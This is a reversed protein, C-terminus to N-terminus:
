HMGWVREVVRKGCKSLIAGLTALLNPCSSNGYRSRFRFIIFFRGLINSNIDGLRRWRCIVIVKSRGRSIGCIGRVGGIRSFGCLVDVHETKVIGVGALVEIGSILTLFVVKNREAPVKFADCPRCRCFRISGDVAKIIWVGSIM